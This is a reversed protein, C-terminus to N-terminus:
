DKLWSQDEFQLHHFHESCVRTTKPNVNEKCVLKWREIMETKKPFTFFSIKKNKANRLNNKCNQIACSPM